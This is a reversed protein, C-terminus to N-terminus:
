GRISFDQNDWELIRLRGSNDLPAESGSLEILGDESYSITEVKYMRKTTTTNKISFVTGFFKKNVAKGSAVRMVSEKVQTSGPEWHFINHNGDSLTSRAFITGDPAISGTNFRSTHTAESVVRFYDGPMLGMAAQPTTEFKIGHSVHKRVLLAYKAFRIAHSRSACFGSLDFTEEPLKDLDKQDIEKDNNDKTSVVTVSLVEPFGNDTDQRFLVTGKFMQREEPTLFSVQMNRINGDTFLAKAKIVANFNIKYNAGHYPLAPVLSFRGGRITFDLFNYAANQFIFERLNQAESIVGNWFFGNAKCFSAAKAMEWTDVQDKGVTEGAGFTKDTLLAHAIEPFCDSASNGSIYGSNYANPNLRDIKIGKKIYASFEGFSSWEKGSALRIGAIALNAYTAPSETVQLENVYAISHEPGNFHSGDEADYMYYDAIANRPNLNDKDEIAKEIATVRITFKNSYSPITFQLQDGVQYNQGGDRLSWIAADSGGSVRWYSYNLSLGSGSGGTPNVTGKRTPPLVVRELKQQVIEYYKKNRGNQRFSGKVYRVTKSDKVFEGDWYKEEGTKKGSDNIKEIYVYKPNSYRTSKTVWDIKTPPNNHRTPSISDVEGPTIEPPKGRFWESNETYINSITVKNGSYFVRYGKHQFQDTSAGDMLLMEKFRKFVYNGGVPVFRYEYQDREPPYIRIYNFQERPSQGRICFVKDDNISVWNDKYIQRAQLIFFSLRTVFKNMGGLSINGNEDEFEQITDDDPQTNVNPFGNIKRWVVSKLGIETADCARNNSVAGVAARLLTSKEYPYNTDGIGEVEVTRMAADLSDGDFYESVKFEYTKDHGVEWLRDPGAICQALCGGITYQDGVSLAEDVDIRRRDVAQRVDEVGWTKYDKDTSIKEGSIEYKFTRQSTNRSILAAYIPWEDNIKNKKQRAAEKPEGKLSDQVLVLEYNVKYRMGNPFPSYVGFETQSSPTRAGSFYQETNTKRLNEHWQISFVDDGRKIGDNGMSGNPYRFPGSEKIRNNGPLGDAFYLAFKGNPYDKLLTDGIAFGEFEPETELRGHSFLMVARLEQYSKRSILQSWLLTSNVRVGQRSFVLPITSGITALEQLSGFSTQPTFRSRGTADDTKLALQKQDQAKPKPALLVSIATLAIGIIIQAVLITTADNRVDPIHAYEASRQGNYEESKDVFYWYEEENIGVANCLDVEYQLLVRRGGPKRHPVMEGGVRRLESM